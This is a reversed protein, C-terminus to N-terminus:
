RPGPGAAVLLVPRDAHRPRQLLVGPHGGRGPAELVRALADGVAAWRTGGLHVPGTPNASVFELNVRSGSMATGSGYSAGAGVVARALEGLTGAALTINLFGPGAVEVAAVGPAQRVRQAVVQAVDRPPRGAAKALRLAVNTAYDGHERSRPREVVVDDPVPVALEGADVAAAVAARIAASLAAPEM